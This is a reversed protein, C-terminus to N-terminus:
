VSDEMVAAAAMSELDVERSSLSSSDVGDEGDAGDVKGEASFGSGVASEGGNGDVM